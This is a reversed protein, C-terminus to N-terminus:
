PSRGGWQGRGLILQGVSMSSLEDDSLVAQAAQVLGAAYTTFEQVAASEDDVRATFEELDDEAIGADAGWDRLDEVAYGESGETPQNEWLLESYEVYRGYDAAARAAAASRLSNGSIPEGQLAFISVPRLHVIAEGEAALENLTGSNADEFDKCIPCQFDAYVELVPLEANQDGMVVSGDDQLVQEALDGEYEFGTGRNMLWWGAGVVVVIFLTAGVIIALTKLGQQRRRERERQARVRERASATKKNM